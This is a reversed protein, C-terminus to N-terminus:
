SLNDLMSFQYNRPIQFGIQELTATAREIYYDYNIDTPLTDPLEMCPKGGESLSVTHNNTARNITGLVGKAYYWRVTKGLYQGNKHAGGTVKRVVVFRRINQCDYITEVIPTGHIIHATVADKVVFCDPNKSLPSNLASGVEAYIGKFKCEDNTKVAIYNNVDRSYLAKYETEETELGTQAEWAKVIELFKEYDTPKVLTIVGDTNGSAVRFGNLTLMEILMLLSLQGTLTVHMGAPPSYITSYPDMLKGFLAGNCTIKMGDAIHKIGDRKARTRKDVITEAVKFFTEGLHKPGFRNKIILNPYYGTVDRDIIRYEGTRLAQVTEKSHLGGIGITYAIGGIHIIRGDINEPCIVHGTSGVTMDTSQIDALMDRLNQTEFKIYRPATYKFSKGVHNKLGPMQPYSGTLSQIETNIIEQGIQADSLSRLDRSYELSLAYRLSLGPSVEALILSTLDLDNFNYNRVKNRQERNLYEAPDYPLDQLHKCHLRAGYTKLSAGLPCVEILDIHNSEPFYFGRARAADSPRANELILENSLDNLDKATVRNDSILYSLMIFDYKKSNFGVICSHLILWKLLGIKITDSTEDDHLEFFVIRGSHFGQFSVLFYNPFSEVDYLKVSNIEEVIQAETYLRDIL